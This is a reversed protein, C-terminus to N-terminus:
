ENKDGKKNKTGIISTCERGEEQGNWIGFYLYVNNNKEIFNGSFSYIGFIQNPNYIKGDDNVNAVIEDNETYKIIIQWEENGFMITGSYYITDITTMGSEHSCFGRNVVFDWDGIWQMRYDPEEVHKKDKKCTSFFTVCAAVIALWFFFHKKNM